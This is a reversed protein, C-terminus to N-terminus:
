RPHERAFEVAASLLKDTPHEHCYNDIWAWVGDADMGNLPNADAGGYGIGSLFGLVWQEFGWARAEGRSRAATWTGCSSNGLGVAKFFGNQLFARGSGAMLTLAMGAVILPRWGDRM